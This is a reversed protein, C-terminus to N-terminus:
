GYLKAKQEASIKMMGAEIDLSGNQAFLTM